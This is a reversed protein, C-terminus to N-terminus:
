AAELEETIEDLDSSIVAYLGPGGDKRVAEIRREDWGAVSRFAWQPFRAELGEIVRRTSSAGM